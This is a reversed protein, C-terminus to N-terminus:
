AHEPSREYRVIRRDHDPWDKNMKALRDKAEAETKFWNCVFWGPEEGKRRELKKRSEIVWVEPM